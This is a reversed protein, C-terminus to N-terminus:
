GRGLILVCNAAIPSGGEHQVMALEAGKVQREGCEGRLQRVAEITSSQTMTYHRYSLLGGHTNVPLEGGLAIRGGEVFAGGEGKKCFGQTELATIVVITSADYPFAVDIDAPTAGAMKYAREAALRHSEIDDLSDCIPFSGARGCVEGFGMLYVPPKKCDKAREASTVVMAGGGDSVLAMDLLHIPDSIMKSDLVDQVTIPERMQANYHLSAHERQAVAVAAMQESTTGYLHMHRRAILGMWAPPFMGFPLEWQPEIVGGAINEVMGNRKMRSLMNDGRVILVNKAMGAEVALAAKYVTSNAPMSGVVVSTTWCPNFGMHELLISPFDLLGAGMSRVYILGDIDDKTLGADAVAKQVAEVSMHWFSNYLVGPEIDTEGVGVIAARGKMDTVM